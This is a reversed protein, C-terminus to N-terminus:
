FWTKVDGIRHGKVARSLGAAIRYIFYVFSPALAILAAIGQRRLGDSMVFRGTTMSDNLSTMLSNFMGDIAAADLTALVYLVYGALGILCILSSIWFTRILYEMHNWAMSDGASRARLRYASPVAYLLLVLAVVQFIETPVCSFILMAVMAGYVRNIQRQEREIATKHDDAM